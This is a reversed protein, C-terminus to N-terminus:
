NYGCLTFEAGASLDRGRKLVIYQVNNYKFDAGDVEKLNITFGNTDKWTVNFDRPVCVYAPTAVTSTNKIVFTKKNWSEITNSSGLAIAAINVATPLTIGAYWFYSDDMNVNGKNKIMKIINSLYQLAEKQEENLQNDKIWSLLDGTTNITTNSDVEAGNWDIDVANILPFNSLSPISENPNFSSQRLTDNINVGGEKYINKFLISSQTTEM